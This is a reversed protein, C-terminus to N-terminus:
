VPELATHATPWKLDNAKDQVHVYV